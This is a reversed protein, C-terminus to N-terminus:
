SNRSQKLTNYGPTEAPIGYSADDSVKVPTGESIGAPLFRPSNLYSTGPYFEPLFMHVFVLLFDQFIGSSATQHIVLPFGQRIEVPVGLVACDHFSSRNSDRFSSTCSDWFFNLSSNRSSDRLASFSDQFFEPSFEQIIELLFVCVFGSHFEQLLPRIVVDSVINDRDNTM